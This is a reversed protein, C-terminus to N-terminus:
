NPYKIAQYQRQRQRKVCICGIVVLAVCVVGATLASSMLVVGGITWAVPVVTLTVNGQDTRNSFAFLCCSTTDYTVIDYQSIEMTCPKSILSCNKDQSGTDYESITGSAYVEISVDEIHSLAFYYFSNKMLQFPLPYTANGHLCSTNDYTGLPITPPYNSRLFQLYIYISATTTPM